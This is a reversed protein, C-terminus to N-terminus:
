FLSRVVDYGASMVSFPVIGFSLWFLDHELHVLLGVLHFEGPRPAFKLTL